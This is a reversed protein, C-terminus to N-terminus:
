FGYRINISFIVQYGIWHGTSSNPTLILLLGANIFYFLSATIIILIYYSIRQIIIIFIISIIVIFLVLPITKLRIDITSLDKVVQFWISLHYILSIITNNIPFVFVMSGTILYNLVIHTLIIVTEPTIVEMIIFVLLLATFTM